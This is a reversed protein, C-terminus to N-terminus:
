QKGQKKLLIKTTFLGTVGESQNFVWDNLENLPITVKDGSKLKGLNVPDNDLRGHIADAELRDVTLWIFETHEGRTIPAKIAFHQDPMRAAFATVFEPWRRRAEAVAAQMEPDEDSIQVVPLQTLKQFVELPNDGRLGAILSTDFLNLHGNEPCFVALCDDGALEAVLRAILRYAAAQDPLEGMRLLDVSLWAQHEKIVNRLRLEPCDESAKEPNDFYSRHFNNVLFFGGEHSIMFIPTEGVVYTKAAATEDPQPDKEKATEVPVGWAESVQQALSYATMKRPGSLLLVLSILPGKDKSARPREMYLAVTFWAFSLCFILRSWEFAQSVLFFGLRGAVFATALLGLWYGWSRNRWVGAGALLFWIGSIVAATPSSVNGMM